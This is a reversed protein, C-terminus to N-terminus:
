KGFGKSAEISRDIELEGNIPSLFKACIEMAMAGDSDLLGTETELRDVRRDDGRNRLLGERTEVLLALTEERLRNLIEHSATESLDAGFRIWPRRM